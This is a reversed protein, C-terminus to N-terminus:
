IKACVKGQLGQIGSQVCVKPKKLNDLDLQIDAPKLKLCKSGKIPCFSANASGGLGKNGIALNVSAQVYGLHKNPITVVRQCTKAFRCRKAKKCKGQVKAWCKLICARYRAKGNKGIRQIACKQACFNFGVKAASCGIVKTMFHYGCKLGDTAYKYGCIAGNTVTETVKALGQIDIRKGVYGQMDVKNQAITGSLKINSVPTKWFGTAKVGREDIRYTTRSLPVGLIRSDSFGQVYSRKLDTSIRAAIKARKGTKLPFDKPLFPFRPDQVGSFIMEKQGNKNIHLVGSADGLHLKLGLEASFKYAATVTGNIGLKKVEFTPTNLLAVMQGNLNLPLKPISGSGVFALQGNFTNQRVNIGYSSRPKFIFTPYSSIGIGAMDIPSLFAGLGHISATFFLAGYDFDFGYAMRNEIKPISFNLAGLEIYEGARGEIYLYKKNTAIKLPTEITNGPQISLKVIARKNSRLMMNSGPLLDNFVDGAEAWIEMRQYEGTKRNYHSLKGNVNALRLTKIPTQIQLSGHISVTDGQGQNSNTVLVLPSKNGGVKYVAAQTNTSILLYAILILCTALITPRTNAQHPKM